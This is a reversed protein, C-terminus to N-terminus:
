IGGYYDVINTFGIPQKKSLAFKANDYQGKFLGTLYENQETSVFSMALYYCVAIATSDDLLVTDSMATPATANPAYEIRLKGEFNYDVYLSQRNNDTEIKTTPEPLYKGNTETIVKKIARLDTPLQIKVWPQFVPIKATTEFSLNFLARNVTLYYYSGTFRIRSRTAGSTPTVTGTYAVFSTGTNVLSITKLTNWAGTYDEIYATGGNSDAEFYYSKVGGNDGNVAEFTLDETTDYPQISFSDESLMNEPNKIGLEYRKFYDAVFGLDKQALDYLLLARGKYDATSSTNVTGDTKIEDVLACARNFLDQITYSM